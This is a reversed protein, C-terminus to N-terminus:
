RALPAQLAAGLAEAFREIDAATKTETACTLLAPGLEPYHQALDLGGQIGQRALTELLPAGPRDLRLVREHFYPTPFAAAVGPQRTLAASLERTRAHAARAVRELGQPGMLSLYV